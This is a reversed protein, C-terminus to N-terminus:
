RRKEPQFVLDLPEGNWASITIPEFGPSLLRLTRGSLAPPLEGEGDRLTLAQGNTQRLRSSLSTCVRLLPASHDYGANRM